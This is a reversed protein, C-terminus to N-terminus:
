LPLGGFSANRKHCLAPEAVGGGGRCCCCCSNQLVHHLVYVDIGGVKQRIYTSTVSQTESLSLARRPSLLLRTRRTHSIVVHVYSLPIKKRHQPSIIM